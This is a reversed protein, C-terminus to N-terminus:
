LLAYDVGLVALLLDPVGHHTDENKKTNDDHRVPNAEIPGDLSAAELINQIPHRVDYKRHIDTEGKAGAVFVGLSLQDRVNPHDPSLHSNKSCKRM